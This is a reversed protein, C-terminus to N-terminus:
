CIGACIEVKAKTPLASTSSAEALLSNAAPKEPWQRKKARRAAVRRRCRALSPKAQGAQRNTPREAAATVVWMLLLCAPRGRPGDERARQSPLVRGLRPRDHARDAPVEAMPAARPSGCRKKGGDDGRRAAMRWGEVAVPIARATAAPTPLTAVGM